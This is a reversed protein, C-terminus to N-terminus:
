LLTINVKTVGQKVFNLEQAAAYSLDIIRNHKSCHCRDNILVTIEKGNALNKVKVKKGLPLTEHAATFLKPNYKAGASTRRGVYYNSYFSAKGKLKYPKTTKSAVLASTKRKPIKAKCSTQGQAVWALCLVCFVSLKMFLNMDSIPHQHWL